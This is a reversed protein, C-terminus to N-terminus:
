RRVVDRSSPLIPPECNHSPVQVVCYFTTKWGEPLTPQHIVTLDSNGNISGPMWEWIEVDGNSDQIGTVFNYGELIGGSLLKQDYEGATGPIRYKRFDEIPRKSQVAFIVSIKMPDTHQLQVELAKELTDFVRVGSLTAQSITGDYLGLRIANLGICGRMMQRYQDTERKYSLPKFQTFGIWPRAEVGRFKRVEDQSYFSNLADPTLKSVPRQLQPYSRPPELGSPDTANAPNNGVFRYLNADGAAFGIPDKSIFRGQVPSYM